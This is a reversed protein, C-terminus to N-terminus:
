LLTAVAIAHCVSGGIVFLHWIGHNYPLTDRHYFWTGATYVIGGALLWGLTAPDLHRMMPGIALLSMWGMAVYTATSLFHFRGIFLLKFVVGVVALGWAVGLLSWGWGGRLGVLAFPTYSGAILLYIACHDLMRLRARLHGSRAAHYLTSAGYLLVLTTAFVATSAIRLADASGAALALLMGGGIVSAVLGVGHTVASVVEQRRELATV